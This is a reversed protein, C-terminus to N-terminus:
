FICVQYSYSSYGFSKINFFIRLLSRTNIKGNISKVAVLADSELDMQKQIFRIIAEQRALAEAVLINQNGINRGIASLITGKNDKCVYRVATSCMKEIRSVDTNWNLRGAPPSQWVISKRTNEAIRNTPGTFETLGLFKTNTPCSHKQLMNNAM